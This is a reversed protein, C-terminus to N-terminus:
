SSSECKAIYGLPFDFKIENDHYMTERTAVFMCRFDTLVLRGVAECKNGLYSILISDFEEQLSIEAQELIVRSTKQKGGEEQM